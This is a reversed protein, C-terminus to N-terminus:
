TTQMPVCGFGPALTPESAHACTIHCYVIANHRCPALPQSNTEIDSTSMATPQHHFTVPLTPTPPAPTPRRRPRDQRRRQGSSPAWTSSTTETRTDWWRCKRSTRSPFPPRCKERVARDVSPMTKISLQTDKERARQQNQKSNTEKFGAFKLKRFTRQSYYRLRELM